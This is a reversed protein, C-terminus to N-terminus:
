GQMMFFVAGLILVTWAIVSLKLMMGGHAAVLERLRSVVGASSAPAVLAVPAKLGLKGFVPLLSPERVFIVEFTPFLPALVSM